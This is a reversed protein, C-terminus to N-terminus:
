GQTPPPIFLSASLLKHGLGQSHYDSDIAISIIYNDEDANFDLRCYGITKQDAELIYCYNDLATFYKKEFWSVHNKFFIIASNASYKRVVPHNRIEWVRRSDQKKVPRIIYNNNM